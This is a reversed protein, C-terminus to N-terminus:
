KDWQTDNPVYRHARGQTAIGTVNKVTGLDVILAQDFDSNEASFFNLLTLSLIIGHITNFNKKLYRDM